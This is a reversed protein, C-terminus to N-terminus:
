PILLSRTTSAETMGVSTDPLVLAGVMMIASFAASMILDSTIFPSALHTIGADKVRLQNRLHGFPPPVKVAMRLRAKGFFARRRANCSQQFREPQLHMTANSVGANDAYQLTAISRAADSKARIHIRQGDGLCASGFPCGGIVAHHLGARM